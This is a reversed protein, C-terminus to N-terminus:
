QDTDIELCNIIAYKMKEVLIEKSDYLPLNLKFFCTTSKPFSNNDYQLAKSIIHRYKFGLDSKPLRSRGSVFKLYMIRYKEDTEEFWEWFWKITEDNIDFGEYTTNNKFDEIDLKNKGCVMEELQSWNLVQLIDSSIVSNFGKRLFEIQNNFEKIRKEKCLLIFEKLNDMDVKIKSGNPKLEIDVDNSNKIVFTLDYSDIIDEINNNKENNENIINIDKTKEKEKRIEEIKLIDELKNILNYISLNMTM